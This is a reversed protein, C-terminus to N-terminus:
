IILRLIINLSFLPQKNKSWFLNYIRESKFILLQCIFFIIHITLESGYLNSTRIIFRRLLEHIWRWRLSLFISPLFDSWFIKQLIQASFLNLKYWNGILHGYLHGRTKHGLTCYNKERKGADREHEGRGLGWDRTYKTGTVLAFRLSTKLNFVVLFLLASLFPFASRKWSTAKGVSCQHVLRASSIQQGASCFLVVSTLKSRSDIKTFM